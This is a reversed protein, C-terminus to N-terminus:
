DERLPRYGNSSSFVVISGNVDLPSHPPLQPFHLFVKSSKRQLLLTLVKLHAEGHSPRFPSPPAPGGGDSWQLDGGPGQCNRLTPSSLAWERLAENQQSNERGLHVRTEAGRVYSGEWLQKALGDRTRTLAPSLLSPEQIITQTKTTTM